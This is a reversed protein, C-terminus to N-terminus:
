IFLFSRKSCTATRFMLHPKYLTPTCHWSQGRPPLLTSLHAHVHMYARTFRTLPFTVKIEDIEDPVIKYASIIGGLRHPFCVRVCLALTLARVTGVAPLALYFFVIHCPAPFRFLLVIGSTDYLQWFVDGWVGGVVPIVTLSSSEDKM